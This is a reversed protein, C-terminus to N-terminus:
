QIRVVQKAEEWLDELAYRNREEPSFLHVIVDNYDVLVWGSDREGEQHLASVGDSRLEKDLTEVLARMHRPNSATAIVFYDAFSTLNRIDLLVIEEAQRDTLLDVIKRALDDAETLSPEQVAGDLATYCPQRREEWPSDDPPSEGERRIKPLM